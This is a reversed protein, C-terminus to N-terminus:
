RGVIWYHFAHFGKGRRLAVEVPFSGKLREAPLPLAREVWPGAPVDITGVEEGAVSVALEAEEEAAVRLVLRAEEAPGAHAVFRDVRRHHRGGDAIVPRTLDLEGPASSEPAPGWVAHNSQDALPGPRYAHASESELDSVDLADLVREGPVARVPLAGTGLLDWRAEYAVMTTGGLIAQDVVTAEVLESGLVPACAMWHPYVIFHTPRREAPLGEYHEFRSGPGAVWYRAEGETTLGVVDFTRRGSFYALAGTDNVGIRADRPLHEAAWRGLWVQQRDIARASRALDDIAWSLRGALAGAFAGAVLPTVHHLSRRLRRAVDGIERALCAAMVIWAPAFPWVYRVRNWLFSLYTCPLLTGLALVAVVAAHVPRGRRRAAVVLAVAGLALVVGSGEPLFVATWQGGDLVDTVLLRVNDLLAARLTAGDYNPNGILWKVATTSSTPHGALRQNLAPVVLPGLLPVLALLRGAHARAAVLGRSLGAARAAVLGRSPGAGPAPRRASAALALAAILSALAGEPRLLPAAFGSLALGRATSAADPRAAAPAGGDPAAALEDAAPDEPVPECLAAALRATRTLIWAFAVTEMGSWAFWAFAAFAACMAGAGAAAARGALPRALRATEVALAAHFVVGLGWVAYVLSLDRLGLAHFPALLVPWLLSTAGTSYGEGAVFSFFGGEALRRAYQLHIFADDLPLAPRGAEALVARICLAGIVGSAALAPAYPLARAGLAHLWTPFKWAHLPGAPAPPVSPLGAAGRQSAPTGAAGRQSAPTEAAGRQPAPHAAGHDGEAM